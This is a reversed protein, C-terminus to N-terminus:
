PIAADQNGFGASNLLLRVLESQRKVGSKSFISKIQSRVTNDTVGIIEAIKRPAHGDSLLLAVRCEAPTLGFLARLVDRTPRRQRSPDIIFAVATISQVGVIPSKRLPSVLVHLPPRKRRSVSATGGTPPGSNKTNCAARQIVQVLLNSEAAREARLGTRTTMLGDKERLLAAAIQNMALIEGTPGLFVIGTPLTDLVTELSQSRNRLETFQMHLKLAREAHPALFELISVESAGFGPCSSERYLSISAFRSGTNLPLGFLGHEFGFRVMFDNYVETTALEAGSCLAESVCVYGVPKSLARRAWLDLSGYRRQYLRTAEPDVQWSSALTYSDRHTDYMVLAASTAGTLQAVQQLFPEWLSPDAAADYLAGLLQSLAEGSPLM